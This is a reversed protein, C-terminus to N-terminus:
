DVLRSDPYWALALAAIIVIGWAVEFPLGRSIVWTALIPVLIPAYGVVTLSADIALSGIYIPHRRNGGYAWQTWTLVIQILLGGLSAALSLHLALIPEWSGHLAVITGLLSLILLLWASIREVVARQRRLTTRSVIASGKRRGELPESRVTM